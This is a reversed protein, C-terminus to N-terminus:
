NRDYLPSQTGCGWLSVSPDRSPLKRQIRGVRSPMPFMEVPQGEILAFANDLAYNEQCHRLVANTALSTSSWPEPFRM